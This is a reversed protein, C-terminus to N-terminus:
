LGPCADGLAYRECEDTTFTRSLREGATELVLDTPVLLFRTAGDAGPVALRSGDAGFSIAGPSTVAPLSLLEDGDVTWLKVSNDLSSTALVTGDPAFEVDLVGGTHGVLVGVETLPVDDLPDVRYVVVTGDAGAAALLDGAPSFDHGLTAGQNNDLTFHPAFTDSRFVNIGEGIAYLLAGSPDFGVSFIGRGSLDLTASSTGTAVDWVRVTGDLSGTLLVDGSADFEVDWVSDRHEDLVSLSEGTAVDWIRATGDEAATAVLSRDSTFDAGFIRGTHGDLRHLVRGGAADWLMASGDEAGTLLLSGDDSLEAITTPAVHGVFVGDERSGGPDVEWIRTTKDGSASALFRGDPSFQVSAIGARHGYLVLVARGTALDWVRATGDEAGTALYRGDPSVDVGCVPGSHGEVVYLLAGSETDWLRATGDQSGTAIVKAEPGFAVGCVGGTHGTLRFLEGGGADLVAAGSTDLGVGIRGDAATAVSTVISDFSYVAVEAGSTSDWRRVTGDIAGTLLESGDRSFSVSTLWGSHGSLMHLQSGDAADWIRATGDLSASAILRGTPDFAADTTGEVHGELTFEQEGTVSDWVTLRGQGRSGGFVTGADATVLLSGDPSFGGAGGEVAVVMRDALVARHVAEVTERLVPEDVERVVRAAELALLASLEPDVELSAVAEATLARGTSVALNHEARRTQSRAVVVLAGAVVTSIALVAVLIRLRRASRQELELERHRREQEAAAAEERRHLGAELFRRETGTLAVGASGSWTEFQALRSGSLLYGDDEGSESWEAAAAALRRGLRLDERAQEIWDRLRPWESLLADHAIEVTPARTAPDHDLTLLRGSAFTEIVAEVDRRDEIGTLEARTVRRRTAGGAAGPAVMRLFMQRATSRGDDDLSTFSGEARRALAGSVGGIEQYGDLTLLADARRDFLVTMAYQLLPLPGPQDAVDAAVQVELEPEVAVGVRAAPGSVAQELEAPTMPHVTEMSQTFLGALSPYALPRDYFDARMAVVVRLQSGPDLCASVLHEIFRDREDRSVLTFLEEFQDIALVLEAAPGPLIRRVARAIGRQDRVLQEVLTAPPNVAVRLLATELEEFPDTGPTMEAIFWRESGPLDGRRVAALLGARVVSSKGSGSPGVIALFRQAPDALRGLLRETLRQRGFFDSADAETFARLGKYPNAVTGVSHGAAGLVGNGAASRLDSLLREADVGWQDDITRTVVTVMAAPVSEPFAMGPGNAPRGGLATGLLRALAAVDASRDFGTEDSFSFRGLYANRTQDLFVAAADLRGHSVGSRHAQSLAPIIQGALRLVADLSWPGTRLADALTGGEYWRTVLYAGGPERWYDLLPVLHPHELRALAAARPGFTRVFEPHDALPAGLVEVAVERGLAAHYARFLRSTGDGTVLRRLEYGHVTRGPELAAATPLGDDAAVVGLDEHQDLIRQELGQLEPSPDIGLEDALLRRAKQFARLADAQRGSRYYALMLQGWFRERLPYQATLNELEPVTTQHRGLALHAEIRLEVATLRLDELRAAMHRLTPAEDAVDVLPIGYWLDLADTLRRGAEAPDSALLPRAQVVQSEFRLADVRESDIELAYGPSRGRLVEEDVNIAKRLNAVYSQLSKRAAEPPSEGYLEDILTDTSVVKNANALLLALVTRQRPGGLAVERGEMEVSLPGLM